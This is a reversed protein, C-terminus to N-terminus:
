VNLIKFTNEHAETYNEYRLIVGLLSDSEPWDNSPRVFVSRV